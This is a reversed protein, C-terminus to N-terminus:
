AAVHKMSVGEPQAAGHTILELARIPAYLQSQSLTSQSSERLSNTKHMFM